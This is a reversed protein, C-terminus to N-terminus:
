KIHFRRVVVGWGSEQGDVNGMGKCKRVEGALQLAFDGSKAFDCLDDFTQPSKVGNVIRLRKRKPQRESGDASAVGAGPIVDVGDSM